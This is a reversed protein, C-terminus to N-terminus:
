CIPQHFIFLTLPCDCQSRSSDCAAAGSLVIAAHMYRWPGAPNSVPMVPSPRDAAAKDHAAQDDTVKEMLGQMQGELM